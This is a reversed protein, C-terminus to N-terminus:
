LMPLGILILPNQLIEKVVYCSRQLSKGAGKILMTYDMQIVVDMIGEKRFKWSRM